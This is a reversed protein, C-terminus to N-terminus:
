KEQLMNRVVAQLDRCSKLRHGHKHGQTGGAKKGADFQINLHMQLEELLICLLKLKEKNV